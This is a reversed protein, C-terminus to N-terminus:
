APCIDIRNTTCSARQAKHSAVAIISSADEADMSHSSQEVVLTPM